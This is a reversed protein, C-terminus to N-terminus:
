MWCDIDDPARADMLTSHNVRTTSVIEQFTVRSIKCKRFLSYIWKAWYDVRDRRMNQGFAANAALGETAMRSARMTWRWRRAALELVRAGRFRDRGGRWEPRGRTGNWKADERGITSVRNNQASSHKPLKKTDPIEPKWMDETGSDSKLIVVHIGIDRMRQFQVM